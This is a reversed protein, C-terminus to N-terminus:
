WRRKMLWRISFVEPKCKPNNFNVVLVNMESHHGTLVNGAYIIEEFTHKKDSNYFSHLAWNRYMNKVKRGAEDYWECKVQRWVNQEYWVIRKSYTMRTLKPISEDVWMKHGFAEKKFYEAMKDVDKSHAMIKRQEEIFKDDVVDIRVIKHTDQFPHRLFGDDYDIDMGGFSDEGEMAGLKRVKRLAPIWLWQDYDREFDVYHWIITAIGRMDEPSLFMTTDRYDIGKKKPWCKVWRRTASDRRLGRKNTKTILAGVNFGKVMGGEAGYLNNAYQGRIQYFWAKAIELPTAKEVVPKYGYYMIPDLNKGTEDSQEYGDKIGWPVKTGDSATVFEEVEDLAQSFSGM